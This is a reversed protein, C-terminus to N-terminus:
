TYYGHSTGLVTCGTVGSVLTLTDMNHDYDYVFKVITSTQLPCENKFADSTTNECM